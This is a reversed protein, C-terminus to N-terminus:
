LQRQCIFYTAAKCSAKIWNKEPPEYTNLIGCDGESKREAWFSEGLTEFNVWNWNTGNQRLGIWYKAMGKQTLFSQVRSDTIVALSGGKNRCNRESEEWNLRFTSVYFCWGEFTLWGKACLQCKHYRQLINPLYVKCHEFSCGAEQDTHGTQSKMSLILIVGLLILCIISLIVCAAQYARVNGPTQKDPGPKPSTDMLIAESYIDESPGELKAYESTEEKEAAQADPAQRGAADEYENATKAKDLEMMEM